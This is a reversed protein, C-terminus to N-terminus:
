EGDQGFKQTIQVSRLYEANRAPWTPDSLNRPGPDPLPSSSQVLCMQTHGATSVGDRTTNGIKTLTTNRLAM